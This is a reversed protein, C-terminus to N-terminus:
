TNRREFRMLAALSADIESTGELAFALMVQALPKLLQNRLM